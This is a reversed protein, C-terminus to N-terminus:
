EQIVYGGFDAITSGISIELSGGNDIIDQGSIQMYNIASGSLTDTFPFSSLEQVAPGNLVTGRNDDQVTRLNIGNFGFRNDSSVGTNSMYTALGFLGMLDKFQSESAGAGYVANVVNEVGTLNTDLLSEIFSAGDGSFNGLEFQEYLYRVFLYSGGRQYLSTGCSFCTNQIDDLYGSVRAYNELGTTTMYGSANISYMDEALHSMAENLWSEEVSGGNINYHQNFSIMHQYEHVLVGPFINTTAFSNTVATGYAAHPDPVFTYFIEMENSIPYTSDDFLDAAYFFGTVMGGSSAGLENVTQTFLVAFKGDGNIDSETGFLDQEDLIVNNFDTAMEQIELASLDGANRNDVYFQFYDTQYRLTATVVDYSSSSSFSNLVKFTRQSGTSALKILHSNPNSDDETLLAEPDLNEEFSRLLDHFDGTIDPNDDENGEDLFGDDLLFSSSLSEGVQFASSSSSTSYSFLMLVVTDTSSIDDFSATGESGSISVASINGGVVTDTTSGSDSSSSSGLGSGSGSCQTFFTLICVLIVIIIFRNQHMSGWCM